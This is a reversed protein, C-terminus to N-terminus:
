NKVYELVYGSSQNLEFTDILGETIIVTNDDTVLVLDFGGETRWLTLADEVGLVFVATSLLDALGSDACVVTASVIGSDAPYGTRPDIIHHYLQDDQEFYRQYGGSTVASCDQLSLIGVMSNSDAPDQVAIRWASGDPKSGIVTINHGLDLLASEIGYDRIVQEAQSAAYGKAIGGLDVEMGPKSLSATSGDLTLANSDILKLLENLEEQSPVQHNGAGGFGWATVVPAITVDFAGNTKTNWELALSLVRVTDESVVASKDSNLLNIDSGERTRSLLSELTNVEAAAATVAEEANKGYATISMITDMAFFQQQAPEQGCATLCLVLAFFPLILRKM